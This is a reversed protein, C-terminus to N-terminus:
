QYGHKAMAQFLGDITNGLIYRGLCIRKLCISNSVTSGSLIKAKAFEERSTWDVIQGTQIDYVLLPKLSGKRDHATYHDRWPDDYHMGHKCIRPEWSLHALSSAALTM